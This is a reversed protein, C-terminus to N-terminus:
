CPVLTSAVLQMGDVDLTVNKASLGFNGRMAWVALFFTSSCCANAHQDFTGSYLVPYVHATLCHTTRVCTNATSRTSVTCMYNHARRTMEVSFRLLVHTQVVRKPLLVCAGQATNRSMRDVCTNLHNQCECAPQKSM